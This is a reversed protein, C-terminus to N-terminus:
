LEVIFYRFVFISSYDYLEEARTHIKKMQNRLLNIHIIYVQFNKAMEGLKRHM